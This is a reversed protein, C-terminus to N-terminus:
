LKQMLNCLIVTYGFKQMLNCLIVIYGLVNLLTKNFIFYKKGYRFVRKYRTKIYESLVATKDNDRSKLDLLTAEEPAEIGWIEISKATKAKDAQSEEELFELKKGFKAPIKNM